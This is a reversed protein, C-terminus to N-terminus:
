KPRSQKGYRHGRRQLGGKSDKVIIFCYGHVHGGQTRIVEAPVLETPMHQALIRTGPLLTDPPAASAHLDSIDEIPYEYPICRSLAVRDGAFM